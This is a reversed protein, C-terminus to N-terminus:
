ARFFDLTLVFLEEEKSEKILKRANEIGQILVEQLHHIDSKALSVVSAFHLNNKQDDRDIADIAKLRWNIHHRTYMESERELFIRALGPLYRDGEKKALGAGLLFELIEQAQGSSLGLRKEIASRTQYEPITLLIHTAAIAWSKYYKIQLDPPLTERIDVRNKFKQRKERIEKIEDEFHERLERTGARAQQVLLLFYRSEERDHSVFRNM